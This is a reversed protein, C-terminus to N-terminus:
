LALGAAALALLFLALLILDVARRLVVFKRVAIRSMVRIRAARTDGTMSTLILQDDLLRAWYPFSARDAGSLRPRVVLLLLVAALALALVALGGAMATLVPLHDDVLSGLGALVAGVFALLLSAKSDTRSIKADTDRVADDLAQDLTYSTAPGTDPLTTM